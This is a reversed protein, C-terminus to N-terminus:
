LLSGQAPSRRSGRRGRTPQAPATQEEQWRQRNLASLRRLVELRVNEAITHRTNDNAPLYDMQRFDHRMDLDDWGYAAAVERDLEEHRARLAEVGPLDSHPDHVANYLDTLGLGERQMLAAREEHLNEATARLLGLRDAAPRPFTEFASSPTYRPDSRMTSSMKRAWAQHVSSQLLGFLAADASAFVCMAESMVATNPVFTLAGYKSVRVIVLVRPLPPFPQWGRPHKVFADGRGLAHYLAPRKDAYQWWRQPLPRRLAFNGNDDRRQRVPRVLETLQQFPQAYTQAGEEEWDWFNIIWRSPAQTPSSTLDAGSLYPFLVDRNRSDAALWQRARAEDTLFGEGLVITGQFALGANAALPRAEWDEEGAKLFSSIGDVAQGHLLVPGAYAQGPTRIVVQSTCVTANGEWPMDPWAARITHGTRELPLLGAERTDGQALTNTAILGFDGGQRTLQAARRFFYAVLDAKGRTGRALVQVLYERYFNGLAERMRQSGLFPPNGVLADFGPDDRDFVEPFELAWHLPRTFGPNDDEDQQALERGSGHVLRARQGALWRAMDDPDRCFQPALVKDLWQYRADESLRGRAGLVAMILADARLRLLRTAERAQELLASKREVNLPTDSPIRELRDRAQRAQQVAARMDTSGFVLERGNEPFLHFEELQKMDTIGMLADGCRLAHDLFSFPRDKQLTVLWLSLKAMEVAMPNNDVGYLCRDAVLRRALTLREEADEPLPEDPSSSAPTAWAELLRDALYRCAQVLFAGSGMAMDCVKLSLLRGADHLRWQERPLGEAPGYYVHPELTAAVLMETLSRPTYHTGTDRRQSGSTVYLGRDAVIVPLGFSDQRLLGAFPRVRELLATDGNCAMHLGVERRAAEDQADSGGPLAAQGRGRGRGRPREGHLQKKLAAQTAGTLDHLCALLHAEGQALWAEAEDLSLFLEAGSKGTLGLLVGEARAATRDLLGEYVHGIQEVDLGRFSLRVAEDRGTAQRDRLFQLSELMHLIVRNDVPLPRAPTDRWCSGQPRGELFPYTDPDFLSGGYAPLRLDEHRIGGYVARFLSLLRVWADHRYGLVEEGQKDAQERLSGCLTSAAYAQDYAPEGLRLLGREEASLLFVLRMMVTLAAEYLQPAPIGSLLSGAGANRDLRDLARLFETIAGRVQLGLKDTVSQQADASKELLCPLTQAEALSFFRRRHLLTVFSRLTIREELWIDAEWTVFTTTKNQCAHVLMFQRGDSVLGLTVGSARCLEAMRRAPSWACRRGPLPADLRATTVSVLLVPRREAAPPTPADLADPDDLDVAAPPLLLWDPRLEEGMEPLSLGPCAAGMDAAPVLVSADYGLLDTLVALVCDRCGQEPDRADDRLALAARLLPMAEPPLRDLGDPMEQLLVPLTLFPGSVDLLSLWENHEDAVAASM